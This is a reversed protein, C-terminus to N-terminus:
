FISGKFSGNGEVMEEEISIYLPNEDSNELYGPQSSLDTLNLGPRLASGCETTSLSLEQPPNPLQLEKKCAKLFDNVDQCDETSVKVASYTKFKIWLKSM